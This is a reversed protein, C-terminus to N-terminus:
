NVSQFIHFNIWDLLHFLNEMFEFSHITITKYTKSLPTSSFGFIVLKSIVKNTGCTVDIADISPVIFTNEVSQVADPM